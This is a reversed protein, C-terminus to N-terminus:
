SRSEELVSQSAETAKYEVSKSGRYQAVVWTLALPLVGALVSTRPTSYNAVTGGFLPGLLNGTGVLSEQLGSGLGKTRVLAMTYYISMMYGVGVGVGLLFFGVINVGYHPSLAVLLLGAGFCAACSHSPWRRFHWADTNSLVVFATVQGAMRTVHLMGQATEGMQSAVLKPLMYIVLGTVFCGMTVYLLGQRVFYHVDHEPFEQNSTHLADRQPTCIAMFALLIFAYAAAIHFPVAPGLHEYTYGGAWFGVMIGTAWSINYGGLMGSLSAMDCIESMWAMLPAWLCSTAVSRAFSVAYLVHIARVHPTVLYTLLMGAVAFLCMSRRGLRESLLGAWFSPLAYGLASLTGLIGMQLPTAHLVNSALFTEALVAVFNFGDASFGISYFFLRNSVAIRQM